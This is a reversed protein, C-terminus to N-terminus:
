ARRGSPAELNVSVEFGSHRRFCDLSGRGGAGRPRRHKRDARSPCFCAGIEGTASDVAVISYPNIPRRATQQAALHPAFAPLLMLGLGVRRNAIM